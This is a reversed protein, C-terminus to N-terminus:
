YEISELQKEGGRNPLQVTKVDRTGIRSTWVCLEYGTFFTERNGSSAHEAIIDILKDLNAMPYKDEVVSQNLERADLAINVSWNKEVTKVTPKVIIYEKIQNVKM